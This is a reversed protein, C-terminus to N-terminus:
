LRSHVALLLTIRICDAVPQVSVPLQGKDMAEKHHLCQTLWKTTHKTRAAVGWRVSNSLCSETYKSTRSLLLSTIWVWTEEYKLHCVDLNWCHCGTVFLFRSHKGCRNQKNDGIRKPKALAQSVHLPGQFNHTWWQYYHTDLSRGLSKCPCFNLAGKAFNPHRISM